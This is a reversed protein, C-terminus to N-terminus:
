PGVKHEEGDIRDRAREHAHTEAREHKLADGSMYAGFARQAADSASALGRDSQCQRRIARLQARCEIWSLLPVYICGAYPPVLHRMNFRHLARIADPATAAPLEGVLRMQRTFFVRGWYVHFVFRVREADPAAGSDARELIGRVEDQERAGPDRMARLILIPLAILVAITILVVAGSLLQDLWTPM